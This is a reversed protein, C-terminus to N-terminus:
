PNVWNRPDSYFDGLTQISFNSIVIPDTLCEIIQLYNSLTNVGVVIGKSWSIARAYDLCAKIPLVENEKCFKKFNTFINRKPTLSAAIETDDVLLNGQLFVSRLYINKNSNKLNDLAKNYFNRQDIISENIQFTTLRPFKEAITIIQNSDYGSIGIHNVFGADLCYELGQVIGEANACELINADHLLVGYLTNQDLNILSKKVSSIVSSVTDFENPSIKTVIKNDLKKGGLNGILEEVGNYSQATDFFINSSSQVEFFLKPLDKKAFVASRSGLGYEQYFNATGIFIDNNQIFKSTNPQKENAM